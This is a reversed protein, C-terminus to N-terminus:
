IDMAQKVIRSPNVRCLINYNIDLSTLVNICCLMPFIEVFSRILVMFAVLSFLSSFLTTAGGGGGGRAESPTRLIATNTTINYKYAVATIM